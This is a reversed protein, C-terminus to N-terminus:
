ASADAPNPANAVVAAQEKPTADPHAAVAPPAQHSQAATAKGNSAIPIAAPESAASSTPAAPLAADPPAACLASSSLLLLLALWLRVTRNINV